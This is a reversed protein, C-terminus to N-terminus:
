VKINGRYLLKKNEDFFREQLGAFGGKKLHLFKKKLKRLM